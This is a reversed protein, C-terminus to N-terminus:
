EPQWTGDMSDLFAKRAKKVLISAMFSETSSQAWGPCNNSGATWEQVLLDQLEKATLVLRVDTDYPQKQNAIWDLGAQEAAQRCLEFHDDSM